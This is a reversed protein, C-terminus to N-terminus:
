PKPSSSEARQTVAHLPRPTGHGEVVLAHDPHSIFSAIHQLKKPLRQFLEERYANYERELQILHRYREFCHVGQERAMLEGPEFEVGDDEDGTEADEWLRVADEWIPPPRRASDGGDDDSESDSLYPVDEPATLLATRVDFIEDWLGSYLPREPAPANDTLTSPLVVLEDLLARETHPHFREGLRLLGARLSFLSRTGLGTDLDHGWHRPPTRFVRLPRLVFESQTERILSVRLLPRCAASPRLFVDRPLLELTSPERAPEALPPTTTSPPTRLGSPGCEDLAGVRLARTAELPVYTPLPPLPLPEYGMILAEDPERLAFYGFPDGQLNWDAALAIKDRRRHATEEVIPFSPLSLQAARATSSSQATGARGTAVVAGGRQQHYAQWELAVKDKVQARTKAPGLWARIKDLRRRARNRVIVVSIARVLRQVVRKRRNWLDNKYTKFDPVIAPRFHAPLSGRPPYPVDATPATFLHFAHSEVENRQQERRQQAHEHANLARIERLAQLQEDTLLEEGVRTKHSQFELESEIQKIEALEQLFFMERSTRQVSARQLATAEERVLVQFTLEAPSRVVDKLGDADSNRDDEPNEAVSLKAQEEKQQQRMARNAEIAKKLDKPKLKGPQQTLVFNVSAVTSLDSPIEVTGVREVPADSAKTARRPPPAKATPSQPNSSRVLKTPSTGTSRTATRPRNETNDSTAAAAVDATAESTSSGTLVCRLPKFGLQSIQLEIESSATAYILPRFEFEIQAVGNAPITGRLPFITFSPHAKVLQVEYEFEIPVSCRLDVHRRAVGGLRVVGFDMRSPFEVQNVVPYGHLPLLCAGTFAADANSAYAVEECRVQVCDYYYQFATPKFTVLLEEALGPPVISKRETAFSARFIGKSPMTYQLRLPKSSNNHVFVRQQYSENLAFGGFHVSSPQVFLLPKSAAARAVAGHESASSASASPPRAKVRTPSPPPM